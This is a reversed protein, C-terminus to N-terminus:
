AAPPPPELAKAIVQRFTRLDVPKELFAAVKISSEFISKTRGKATLIVVPLPRTREDQQLKTYVTYGDMGPMMVDLILLGPLRNAKNELYALADPGSMFELAEHGIATVFDKLMQRFAHDDDVLAILAM